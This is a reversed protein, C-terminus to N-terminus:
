ILGWGQLHWRWAEVARRAVDLGDLQRGAHALEVELRWGGTAAGERVGQTSRIVPVDGSRPPRNLRDHKDLNALDALLALYPDGGIAAEVAAGSVGHTSSEAKLADKLHYAQVFFSHLRHRAEEVAEGSPESTQPASLARVDRQIDAWRRQWGSMQEAPRLALSLSEAVNIEEAVGIHVSIATSGCRSCSSRPSEHAVGPSREAGCASCTVRNQARDQSM